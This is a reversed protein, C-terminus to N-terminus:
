MGLTHIVAALYAAQSQDGEKIHLRVHFHPLLAALIDLYEGDYPALEVIGGAGVLDTLIALQPGHLAPTPVAIVETVGLDHLRLVSLLDTVVVISQTQACAERYRWASYIELRPDFGKPYTYARTGLSYGVYAVLVGAENHFPIAVKDHMIGKGTFYAVGFAELTPRSVELVTLAPHEVSLTKLVFGLPENRKGESIPEAPESVAKTPEEGPQPLTTAPNANLDGEGRQRPEAKEKAKEKAPEHDTNSRGPTAAVPSGVPPASNPKPTSPVAPTSVHVAGDEPFWTVLMTAAEQVSVDEKLAVLDLLNGGNKKGKSKCEGFCYWANKERNVKFSGSGCLPCVGEYGQPTERCAAFVGYRELVDKLPVRAKLKKWDIYAM